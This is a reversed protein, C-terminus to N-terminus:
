ALDLRAGSPFLYGWGGGSSLLLRLRVKEYPCYPVLFIRVFHMQWDRNEDIESLHRTEPLKYSSM